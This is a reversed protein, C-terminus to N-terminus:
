VGRNHCKAFLDQAVAIVFGIWVRHEYMQIFGECLTTLGELHGSLAGDSVEQGTSRM